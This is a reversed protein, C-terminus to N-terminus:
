LPQVRPKGLEGAVPLVPKRAVIEASEGEGYHAIEWDSFLGRIEGPRVGFRGATRFAGVFLGGPRVGARISPFLDRQLYHYDCILEWAGPEIVFEGRELDAIRADIPLNRSRLARIAVPSADVATVRWGLSNLLVAHRGLGCALDLARGPSITKAALVVLPAPGWDAGEGALYREDWGQQSQEFICGHYCSSPTHVPFNRNSDTKKEHQSSRDKPLKCASEDRTRYLIRAARADFAHPDYHSVEGRVRM